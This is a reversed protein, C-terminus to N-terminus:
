QVNPLFGAFRELLYKVTVGFPAIRYPNKPPDVQEFREADPGQFDLAIGPDEDLIQYRGKKYGICRVGM